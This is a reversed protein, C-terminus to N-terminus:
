EKKLAEAPNTRMLRLAQLIVTGITVTLVIVLAAIYIAPSNEIRVPYAELWRGFYIYSLPIAIGAGILVPAVFGWVTKWFVEHRSIGFVKRVATDHRNMQAYYSSLAIVALGTMIMCILAFVGVLRMMRNEDEYNAKICEELTYIM